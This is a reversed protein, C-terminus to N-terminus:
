EEDRRRIRVGNGDFVHLKSRKFKVFIRDGSKFPANRHFSDTRFSRNM